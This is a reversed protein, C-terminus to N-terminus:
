EMHNAILKFLSFRTLDDNTYIGSQFKNSYLIFYLCHGGSKQMAFIAEYQPPKYLFYRAPFGTLQNDIKEQPLPRASWTNHHHFAIM